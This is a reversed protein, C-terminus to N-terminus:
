LYNKNANALSRPVGYKELKVLLIAHQISVFAKNLDLFIELASEARNISAFKLLPNTSQKSLHTPTKGDYICSNFLAITM